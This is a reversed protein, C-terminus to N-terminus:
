GTAKAYWRSYGTTYIGEGYDSAIFVVLRFRVGPFLVSPHADASINFLYCSKFQRYFNNVLPLMRKTSHGSLPVIMSLLGKSNSIYKGREMFFAYLNGCSETQYDKITYKKIKKYEVYPPNGIIVDFGGDEEIIGYFETVWHFPQHSELWETYGDNNKGYQEALYRNMKENLQALRRSLEDKAQRYEDGGVDQAERFAENAKQVESAQERIEDTM